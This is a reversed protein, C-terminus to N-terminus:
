TEVEAEENLPETEEALASPQAKEEVAGDKAKAPHQQKKSKKRSKRKRNPSPSGSPTTEPQIFPPPPASAALREKNSAHENPFPKRGKLILIKFSSQSSVVPDRTMEIMENAAQDCLDRVEDEDMGMQEVLLRLFNAEFGEVTAILFMKGTTGRAGDARLPFVHEAVSVDVFGAEVLYRPDLPPIPDAWPRGARQSATYGNAVLTALAPSYPGGPTGTPMDEFLVGRQPSSAVFDKNEIWGGPKLCDFAQRYIYRIDSFAGTMHRMHVLDFSNRPREWPVEADDIEFFVNPPVVVEQFASMDTGIVECDPYLEGMRIAWEGIGTGIDLIKEPDDLEVTTLEGDFAHLHVQHILTMRALEHEDNPM